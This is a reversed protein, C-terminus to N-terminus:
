SKAKALLYLLQDCYSYPFGKFDQLDISCSSTRLVEPRLEELTVTVTSLPQDPRDSAKLTKILYASFMSPFTFPPLFSIYKRLTLSRGTKSKL